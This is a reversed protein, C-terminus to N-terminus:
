RPLEALVCAGDETVIAIRASEADLCFARGYITARTTGPVRPVIELRDPLVVAIVAATAALPAANDIPLSCPIRQVLAGDAIRRVYLGNFNEVDGRPRDPDDDEDCIEADEHDRFLVAESQGCPGGAVVYAWDHIRRSRILEREATSRDEALERLSLTYLAWATEAFFHAIVFLSDRDGLAPYVSRYQVAMSEHAPAVFLPEMGPLLYGELRGPLHSVIIAERDGARTFSATVFRQWRESSAFAGLPLGVQANRLTVHARDPSRTLLWRGSPSLAITGAAHDLAGLDRCRLPNETVDPWVLLRRETTIAALTRGALAVRCDGLLPTGLDLRRMRM